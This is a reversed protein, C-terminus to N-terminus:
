NAASGCNTIELQTADLHADGDVSVGFRVRDSVISKNIVLLGHSAVVGDLGPAGATSEIIAHEITLDSNTRVGTAGGIIAISRIAGRSEFAIGNDGTVDVELDVEPRPLTAEDVPALEQRSLVLPTGSTFKYATGNIATGEDRLPPLPQALRITWHSTGRAVAPMPDLPVFRM